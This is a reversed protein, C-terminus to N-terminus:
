SGRVLVVRAADAEHDVDLAALRVRDDALAQEHQDVEQV